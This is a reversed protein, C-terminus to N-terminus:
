LGTQKTIEIWAGAYPAVSKAFFDYKAECIEIWAGAYPAVGRKKEFKNLKIIEIWAGAYPAVDILIIQLGEPNM